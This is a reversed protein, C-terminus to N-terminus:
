PHIQKHEVCEPIYHKPKSLLLTKLKQVFRTKNKTVVHRDLSRDRVLKISSCSISVLVSNLYNRPKLKENISFSLPTTQGLVFTSSLFSSPKPNNFSLLVCFTMKLAEVVSTGFRFVLLSCFYNSSHFRLLISCWVRVSNIQM